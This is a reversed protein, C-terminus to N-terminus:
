RDLLEPNDYINGIISASEFHVPPLEVLTRKREGKFMAEDEDWVVVYSLEFGVYKRNLIDGEYIENGNQDKLGTYQRVTDINIPHESLTTGDIIYPRFTTNVLSGYEWKNSNLGKGRFKIDRM